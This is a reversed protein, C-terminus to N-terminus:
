CDVRFHAVDAHTAMMISPHEQISLLLHNAFSEVILESTLARM